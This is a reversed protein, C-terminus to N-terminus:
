KKNSKSTTTEKKVSVSAIAGNPNVHRPFKQKQMAGTKTTTRVGLPENGLAKATAAKQAHTGSIHSNKSPRSDSANAVSSAKRKAPLRTQQLEGETWLGTRVLGQNLANHKCLEIMDREFKAVDIASPRPNSTTM